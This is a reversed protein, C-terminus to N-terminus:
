QIPTSWQLFGVTRTLKESILRAGKVRKESDNGGEWLQVEYPLQLYELAIATKIPNPVNSHAHLLFAAVGQGLTPPILRSSFSRSPM